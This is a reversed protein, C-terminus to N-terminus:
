REDDNTELLEPAYLHRCATLSDLRHRETLDILANVAASDTPDYGDDRAPLPPRRSPAPSVAITKPTADVGTLSRHGSHAVPLPKEDPDTRAQARTLIDFFNM